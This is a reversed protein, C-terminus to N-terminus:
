HFEIPSNHEVAADCLRAMKECQYYDDVNLKRIDDIEQRLAPIEDITYEGDCDSHTLILQFPKDDWTGTGGYGQMTELTFGSAAAISERWRAYGSYAGLHESVSDYEGDDYIKTKVIINLGM